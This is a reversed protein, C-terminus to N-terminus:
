NKNERLEKFNNNIHFKLFEIIWYNLLEFIWDNWYLMMLPNNITCFWLALKIGDPSTDSNFVDKFSHFHDEVEAMENLTEFWWKITIQCESIKDFFM